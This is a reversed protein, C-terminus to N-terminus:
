PARFDLVQEPPPFGAELDVGHVDRCHDRFWRDFPDQSTAVGQLAAEVDAAELVVVAIDGDATPQIWVAERTIGHRRRSALFGAARDGDGCSRMVARDTETKGPLLPIAFAIAQPTNTTMPADHPAGLTRAM